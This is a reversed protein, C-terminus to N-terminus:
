SPAATEPTRERPTFLPQGGSWAEQAGPQGTPPAVGCSTDGKKGKAGPAALAGGRDAATAEELTRDASHPPTAALRLRSSAQREVPGQLKDM